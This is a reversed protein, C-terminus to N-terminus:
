HHKYGAATLAASTAGIAALKAQVAQTGHRSLYSLVCADTDFGRRSASTRNFNIMKWRGTLSDRTIVTRGNAAEARALWEIPQVSIRGSLIEEELERAAKERAIDEETLRERSDCPM